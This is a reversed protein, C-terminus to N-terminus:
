KTMFKKWDGNAIYVSQSEFKEDIDKNYYYVYCLEKEGSDLHEIELLKKHYENNPNGESIFNEMNDIAQVTNDYDSIEVIEGYIKENGEIIAPYGKHPLHYLKMDHLIAPTNKIVKGQLYKEYNYFGERLSGYVFLNYKTM